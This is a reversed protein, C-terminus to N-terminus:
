ETCIPVQQIGQSSGTIALQAAQEPDLALFHYFHSQEGSGLWGGARQYDWGGQGVLM